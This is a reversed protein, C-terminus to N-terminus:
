CCTVSRGLAARPGRSRLRRILQGGVFDGPAIKSPALRGRFPRPGPHASCRAAPSKPGIFVPAYIGQTFEYDDDAGLPAILALTLDDIEERLPRGRHSAELAPM